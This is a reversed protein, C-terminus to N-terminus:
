TGPNPSTTKANSVNSINQFDRQGRERMSRVVLHPLKSYTYSGLKPKLAAFALSQKLSISSNQVFAKASATAGAVSPTSSPDPAPAPMQAQATQTEPTPSPESQATASVTEPAAPQQSVVPSPAPQQQQQSPEPAPRPEPDAFQQSLPSPQEPNQGNNNNSQHQRVEMVRQQAYRLLKNLGQKNWSTFKLEKTNNTYVHVTADFLRHSYNFSNIMDYRLDDITLYMLPKHDILLLRYDTACIMAFGGTYRGNVCQAITEGEMLLNSLERIEGKGWFQFNCGIRKLQEEVHKRSVM